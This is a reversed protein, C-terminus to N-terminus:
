KRKAKFADCHVCAANLAENSPVEFDRALKHIKKRANDTLLLKVGQSDRPETKLGLARIMPGVQNPLIKREEGRASLITMMVDAYQGMYREMQGPLHCSTLMAEILVNGPDTWREEGTDALNEAVLDRIKAHLEGDECKAAPLASGSAPAAPDSNADEAIRARVTAHNAFRFALLRPQFESAIRAQERDDLLPVRGGNPAIVLRAGKVIAAEFHTDCRLVKSFRPSWLTGNRAIKVTHKRSTNLLRQLPDNFGSQDIALTLGLDTPLSGLGNATIETLLLCHRALCKVVALLQNVERTEPGIIVLTPAAPLADMLWVAFLFLTVLEAAEEDLGGYKQVLDIIDAALQATSEKPPCEAPLHLERAIAPDIKRAVYIQNDHEVRPAIQAIEGDFLMLNLAGPDCPDHVVDLFSGDSFVEGLTEIPKGPLDGVATTKSKEERKSM